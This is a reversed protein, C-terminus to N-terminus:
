TRDCTPFTADCRITTMDCTYHGSATNDGDPSPRRLAIPDFPRAPKEQPHRPEYCEACVQLKPWQGDDRLDGYRFPLGCKKCLGVSYKGVAYTAM